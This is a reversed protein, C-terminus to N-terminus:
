EDAPRFVSAFGIRMAPRFFQEVYAYSSGLLRDLCADDVWRVPVHGHLYIAEEEGICFSMGFTRRNRRLLHEYFEAYNEMPAPMVYTEVHLSRQRLHFWVSFVGKQEGVLRVFWRREGTETDREVAQIVPNEDRQRALWDDILLEVADLEGPTAPPLDEDSM